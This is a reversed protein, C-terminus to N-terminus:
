PMLYVTVIGASLTQAKIGDLIIGKPFMIEKTLETTTVHIRAVEVGATDQMICNAAVSHDLSIGQVMLNTDTVADAAASMVIVQGKRTVAM